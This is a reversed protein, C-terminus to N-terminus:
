VIDFRICLIHYSFFKIYKYYYDYIHKLYLQNYWTDYLQNYWTDIYRWIHPQLSDFSLIM